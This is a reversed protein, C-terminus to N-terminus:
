VKYGSIFIVTERYDSLTIALITFYIFYLSIHRLDQFLNLIVVTNM